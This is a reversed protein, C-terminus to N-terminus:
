RRRRVFAFSVIGILATTSPTPVVEVIGLFTLEVPTSSGLPTYFPSPYDNWQGAASIQEYLVAYDEGAPSVPANNPEGVFWNTYTVAEGSAWRWEGEVVEDTLGIWLNDDRIRLPRFTNHVWDHEAQSRITVLNGGQSVAYAQADHWSMPTPTLFYSHGNAPNVIVGLTPAAFAASSAAVLLATRFM